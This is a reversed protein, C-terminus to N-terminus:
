FNKSLNLKGTPHYIHEKILAVDMTCGLGLMTQIVVLVLIADIASNVAPKDKIRNWIEDPVHTTSPDEFTVPATISDTEGSGDNNSETGKKRMKSESKQKWEKEQHPNKFRNSDAASLFSFLGLTLVLM